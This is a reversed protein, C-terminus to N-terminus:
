AAVVPRGLRRRGARGRRRRPAGAGDGRSASSRPMRARRAVEVRSRFVMRRLWAGLGAADGEDVILWTTEGDDVVSAAHEVRGQPDLILLETGRGPELAALAQSAISDLWTLRDPGTVSLM